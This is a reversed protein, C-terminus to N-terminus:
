AVGKPRMFTVFDSRYRASAFTKVRANPDDGHTSSGGGSAGIVESDGTMTPYSLVVMVHGPYYALDGPVQHGWAVPDCAYALMSSTMHKVKGWGAPWRGLKALALCAFLSCDVVGVGTKGLALAADWTVARAHGGWTYLWGLAALLVQAAGYGSGKPTAEMADERQSTTSGGRAVGLKGKLGYVLAGIGGIGALWLLPM